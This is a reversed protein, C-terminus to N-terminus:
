APLERYGCRFHCPEDRPHHLKACRVRGRRGTRVFVEAAALMGLPPAIFYIWLHPSRAFVGSGLTRAPNMSMGSLPAEFTIFLAVLSAAAAGTLRAHRPSSSVTLVVLMLVGSIVAEGIFAVAIGAPGPSTAVYNVSPHAPLGGFVLTAVGIGAIGGAFQAAVYAAADVAGMRGLRLFTLTVAPNMHAGSWRGFPSYILTAATLGMAIGMPMRGTFGPALWGALPSQPHQLAVGFGAASIMFLALSCAEVVYVPWHVSLTRM